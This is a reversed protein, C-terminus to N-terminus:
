RRGKTYKLWRNNRLVFENVSIVENGRDDIDFKVEPSEGLCADLIPSVALPLPAKPPIDAEDFTLVYLGGTGGCAGNGINTRLVVYTADSATYSALIDLWDGFRTKFQKLVHGGLKVTILREQKSQNIASIEVDGQHISLRVVQEQEQAKL